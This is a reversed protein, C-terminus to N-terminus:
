EVFYYNGIERILSGTKTMKKGYYPPNPIEKWAFIPPPLEEPHPPDDIVPRKTYETSSTSSTKSPIRKRPTPIPAKKVRNLKQV